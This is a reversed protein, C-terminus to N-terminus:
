QQAFWGHSVICIQLSIFSSLQAHFICQTAFAETMDVCASIPVDSSRSMESLNSMHEKLFHSNLILNFWLNNMQLKKWKIKSCLGPWKKLSNRGWRMMWLASLKWHCFCIKCLPWAIQGAQHFLDHSEGIAGKGPWHCRWGTFAVSTDSSVVQFIFNVDFKYSCTSKESIGFRLIVM